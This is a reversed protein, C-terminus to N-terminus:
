SRNRRSASASSAPDRDSNVPEHTV